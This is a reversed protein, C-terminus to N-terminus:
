NYNIRLLLSIIFLIYSNNTLFTISYGILNKKNYKKLDEHTELM